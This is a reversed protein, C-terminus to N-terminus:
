GDLAEWEELMALITEMEDNVSRWAFSKYEHADRKKMLRNYYEEIWAM